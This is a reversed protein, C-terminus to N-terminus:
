QASDLLDNAPQQTSKSRKPFPSLCAGPVLPKNRTDRQMQRHLRQEEVATCISSTSLNLDILNSYYLAFAYFNMFFNFM